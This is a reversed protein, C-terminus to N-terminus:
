ATAPFCYTAIAAPLANNTYPNRCHAFPTERLFPKLKPPVSVRLFPPPEITPWRLLGVRPAIPDHHSCAVLNQPSTRMVIRDDRARRKAVGDFREDGNSQEETAGLNFRKETM